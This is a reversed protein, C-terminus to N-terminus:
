KGLFKALSSYTKPPKPEQYGSRPAFVTGGSGDGVPKSKGTKIDEQMLRRRNDSLPATTRSEMSRDMLSKEMIQNKLAAMIDPDNKLNDPIQRMMENADMQYANPSALLNLIRRKDVRTSVEPSPDALPSTRSLPMNASEDLTFDGSIAKDQSSVKVIPDEMLTSSALPYARRPLNAGMGDERAM